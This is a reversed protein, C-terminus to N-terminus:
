SWRPKVVSLTTSRARCVISSDFFYSPGHRHTKQLLEKAAGQKEDSMALLIHEISVYEDKMKAAEALAAEFVQGSRRSLYVEGAGSVKPLKDIALLVEQVLADPSIGMKRLMSRTIGEPEHVMAGLVHEPEIQQNNHQAALEQARQVIEQSKITFKDFRM